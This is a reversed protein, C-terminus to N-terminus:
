GIVAVADVYDTLDDRHYQGGERMYVSYFNLIKWVNIAV